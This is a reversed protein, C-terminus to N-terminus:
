GLKGDIFDELYGKQLQSQVFHVQCNERIVNRRHFGVLVATKFFFAEEFLFHASIASIFVEKEHAYGNVVPAFLHIQHRGM